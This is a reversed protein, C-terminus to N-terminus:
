AATSPRTTSSLWGPLGPPHRLAFPLAYSVGRPFGLLCFREPNLHAIAAALDDVHDRLGYGTPPATSRGRGRLSVAVCRRPALETMLDLYDEAAESLGPVIVLAVGTGNPPAIDLHRLRVAGHEVWGEHMSNAVDM